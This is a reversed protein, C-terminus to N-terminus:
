RCNKEKERLALAMWGEFQEIRTEPNPHTSLFEAPQKGKTHQAMRRWVSPAERPDYCARAMYILGMYDAESEHKRSFPLMVGYQSGLGFAGMVMRQTQYDMEGVSMNVAMSGLQFLKQQAMREAGHRALAHAIEHGMIVALGDENAAIPLIGSYVAVKGGPLAFANAQESNILNFEWDFGEADVVSALKTGISRILNVEPGSRVVQSQNLIQQYSRLGLAAEQEKSIDVMQQRGTMEVTQLNSYYYYLGYAAFLLIPWLRLKGRRRMPAGSGMRRFRM